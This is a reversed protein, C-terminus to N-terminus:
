TDPPETAEPLTSVGGGGSHRRGTHWGRTGGLHQTNGLVAGSVMEGSWLRRHSREGTRAKGGHRTTSHRRSVEALRDPPIGGGETRCWSV